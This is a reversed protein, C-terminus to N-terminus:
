RDMCEESALAQARELTECTSLDRSVSTPTRGSPHLDPFRPLMAPWRGSKSSPRFRPIRCPLPVVINSAEPGWFSVAAGRALHSTSHKGDFISDEMVSGASSSQQRPHSGDSSPEGECHMNRQEAIREGNNHRNDESPIRNNM